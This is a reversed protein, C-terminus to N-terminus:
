RELRARPIVSSGNTTSTITTMMIMMIMWGDLTEGEWAESFYGSLAGKPASSNVCLSIVDGERAKWVKYSRDTTTSRHSHWLCTHTHNKHSDDHESDNTLTTQPVHRLNCCNLRVVRARAMEQRSDCSAHPTILFTGRGRKSKTKQERQNHSATACM